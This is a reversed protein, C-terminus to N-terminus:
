ADDPGERRALGRAMNTGGVALAPIFALFTLLRPAGMFYLAAGIALSFSALKNRQPKPMSEVTRWADLAGGKVAGATGPVKDILQSAVDGVQDALDHASALFGGGVASAAKRTKSATTKTAAM